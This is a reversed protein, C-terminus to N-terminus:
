GSVGSWSYLEQHNGAVRILRDANASVASVHQQRHSQHSTDLHISIYYYMCALPAIRTCAAMSQTPWCVGTGGQCEICHLITQQVNLTVLKETSSHLSMHQQCLLRPRTKSLPLLPSAPTPAFVGSKPIKLVGRYGAVCGMSRVAKLQITEEAGRYM